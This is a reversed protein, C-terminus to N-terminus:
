LSELLMRCAEVHANAADIAALLYRPKAALDNAIAVAHFGEAAALVRLPEAFDSDIEFAMMGGARLSGRGRRLIARYFLLPDSSPVYLAERPEYRVVNPELCRERDEPVYPPNSVLLDWADRPWHIEPSLVDREAFHVKVNCRAANERAVALAKSSVDCAEVCARPLAAALSIAIAGSGTCLDAVRISLGHYLKQLAVALQETEPRPILVDPTVRLTLGCFECEGVVYQLPEYALLRALSAEIAWLEADNISTTTDLLLRYYPKGICHEALRRAMATAEERPYIFELVEQM